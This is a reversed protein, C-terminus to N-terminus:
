VYDGEEQDWLDERGGLDALIANREAPDLSDLQEMWDAGMCLRDWATEQVKSQPFFLEKQVHVNQHYEKKWSDHDSPGFPRGYDVEVPIQVSGGPGVNFALRAYSKGDRAVIAMVAHDCRGFVRQFCEEDVSSPCPSNGPHTHIWLRGFQIPRRGQDIQSDFFNAVAQDDFEISAMTAKQSVLVIDQIYLLDDAPTIGFGGIETNGADRFYLLKAWATPSFRLAQDDPQRPPEPPNIKIRTQEM